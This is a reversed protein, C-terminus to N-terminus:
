PQTLHNMVELARQATELQAELSAAQAAALEKAQTAQEMQEALATAWEAAQEKAQTAEEVLEPLQALAARAREKHDVAAQTAQNALGWVQTLQANQDQYRGQWSTAEAQATHLELERRAHLASAIELRLSERYAALWTRSARIAAAFFAVAAVARVSTLVSGRM